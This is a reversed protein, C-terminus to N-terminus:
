EARRIDADALIRTVATEGPWGGRVMEKARQLTPAQSAMVLNIFEQLGFGGREALRLLSQADHYLRTYGRYAQEAAAWAVTLGGQIPFRMSV